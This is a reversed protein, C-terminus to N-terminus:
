QKQMVAKPKQAPPKVPVPKKPLAPKTSAPKKIVAPKVALAPKKDAATKVKVDVPKAPATATTTLSEEAPIFGAETETEDRQMSQQIMSSDTNGRDNSERLFFQVSDSARREAQEAILSMLQLARLSDSTKDVADRIKALVQNKYELNIESYKSWGSKTMVQKYFMRLKEFKQEANEATGFVIVQRGIKPLMEFKRQSTIDVQEIMAMLFSDAQILTSVEKINRLLSSDAKSVFNANGAYGTFAPLRASFKDSLPLIRISSDIYFSKGTKSFV